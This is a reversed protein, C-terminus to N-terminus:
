PAEAPVGMTDIEQVAPLSGPGTGVTKANDRGSMDQQVGINIPGYPGPPWLADHVKDQGSKGAAWLVFFSLLRILINRYNRCTPARLSGNDAYFICEVEDKGLERHLRCLVADIILNFTISLEM